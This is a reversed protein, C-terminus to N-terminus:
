IYCFSAFFAGNLSCWVRQERGESEQKSKGEEKRNSENRGESSTTGESEHDPVWM